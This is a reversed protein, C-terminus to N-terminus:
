FCPVSLYYIRNHVRFNFHNLTFRGGLHNVSRSVRTESETFQNNCKKLSEAVNAGFDPSGVNNPLLKDLLYHGIEHILATKFASLQTIGKLFIGYKM